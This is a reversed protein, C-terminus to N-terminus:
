LKNHDTNLNTINREFWSMKYKKAKGEGEVQISGNIIRNATNKNLDVNEICKLSDSKSLAYKM